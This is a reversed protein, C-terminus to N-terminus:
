IKFFNTFKFTFFFFKFGIMLFCFSECDSCKEFGVAGVNISYVDMLIVCFGGGVDEMCCIRCFIFKSLINFTEIFSICCMYAYVCM